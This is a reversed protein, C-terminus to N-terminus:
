TQSRPKVDSVMVGPLLSETCTPSSPAGAPIMTLSRAKGSSEVHFQSGPRAPDLTVSARSAILTAVAPTCVSLMQIRSSPTLSSRMTRVVSAPNTGAARVLESSAAHSADLSCTVRTTTAPAFTVPTSEPKLKLTTVLVSPPSVCSSSGVAFRVTCPESRCNMWFAFAIAPGFAISKTGATAAFTSPPSPRPM